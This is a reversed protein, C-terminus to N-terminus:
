CEIASMRMNTKLFLTSISPKKIDKLRKWEREFCLVNTLFGTNKYYKGIFDCFERKHSETKKFDLLSFHHRDCWCIFDVYHNMLIPKIIYYALISTNEKYFTDRKIQASNTSAYLDQYRLGMFDLVKVLQFFSHKREVEMLTVANLLFVNLTDNPKMSFYSGFLCNMTEAWFETYAEYLNVDSDVKFIDLIHAHCAENNMGSFDLGFTHFTEHIFVKFWEEKRFIIIETKPICSYTFATNANNEDLIDIHSNPITKTLSTMYIYITVMKSCKKSSYEHVIHLWMIIREICQNYYELSNMTDSDEIIFHVKYNRHFLSFTYTIEYSATEHIHQRIREPFSKTNFNNPKPIQTITQIKKVVSEYLPYVSNNNLVFVHAKRIDYYLQTFVDCTRDKKITPEKPYLCPINNLYKFIMKSNKNLPIEKMFPQKEM